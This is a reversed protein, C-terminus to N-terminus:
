FHRELRRDGEPGSRQVHLNVRESSM